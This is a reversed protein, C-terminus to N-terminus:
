VLMVAVIANIILAVSAVSLAWILCRHMQRLADPSM